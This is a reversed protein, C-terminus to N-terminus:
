VYYIGPGGLRARPNVVYSASEHVKKIKKQFTCSVAEYTTFGGDYYTPVVKKAYIIYLIIYFKM